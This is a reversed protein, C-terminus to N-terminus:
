PVCRIVVVKFVLKIRNQPIGNDINKSFFFCGFSVPVGQIIMKEIRSTESTSSISCSSLSCRPSNSSGSGATLGRGSSSSNTTSSGGTSSHHHHHYSARGSDLSATSHRSGAVSGLGSASGSGSGSGSGSAASGSSSGPSDRGPSRAVDIGQDDQQNHLHQQYYVIPKQNSSVPYTFM